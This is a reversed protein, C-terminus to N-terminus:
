LLEPTAPNLFPLIRFISAGTTTTFYINSKKADDMMKLNAYKSDGIVKHNKGGAAIVPALLRACVAASSHDRSKDSSAEEMNYLYGSADCLCEWLVGENEGPKFRCRIKNYAKKSHTDCVKEDIVLDEHLIFNEQNIKMCLNRFARTKWERDHTKAEVDEPTPVNEGENDEFHIYRSHVRFFDYPMLKQVFPEKQIESGYWALSAIYGIKKQGYLVLRCIWWAKVSEKALGGHAM